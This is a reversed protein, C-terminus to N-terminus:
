SHRGCASLVVPLAHEMWNESWRRRGELNKSYIALNGYAHPQAEPQKTLPSLLSWLQETLESATDFIRGNKDDQVLESLCEFNRACVPVHCGFLDLVKMPLDLGSTSTHLSVGVDACALLKPYDGPELWVTQVAVHTMKLKSLQEEYFAKQPGKGTVVVLVKLSSKESEIKQDLAVLAELLVGFDEDETWSTSSTVLAPRDIRPGCTNESKQTFITQNQDKPDDALLNWSRPCAACLKDNLKVMIDHQEEGTMPRFMAPPCDYLVRINDCITIEKRLFEKMASTVCLHGDALPAVAYEYKKALNRFGGENLM